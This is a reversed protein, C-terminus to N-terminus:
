EIVPRDDEGGSNDAKEVEPVILSYGMTKKTERLDFVPTFVIKPARIM